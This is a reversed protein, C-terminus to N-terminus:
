AGGFGYPDRLARVLHGLGGTRLMHVAIRRGRRSTLSYRVNNTFISM